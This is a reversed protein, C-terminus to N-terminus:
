IVLISQIEAIRKLLDLLIAYKKTYQKIPEIRNQITHLTPCRDFDKWLGVGVAAVTAAGLSGANQGVNTEIINKNYVDAFLSEGFSVKEAEAVILMDDSISRTADM